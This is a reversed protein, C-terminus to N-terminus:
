GLSKNLKIGNRLTRFTGNFRYAEKDENFWAKGKARVIRELKTEPHIITYEVDYQGGSEFELASYFAQSSVTGTVKWLPNWQRALSRNATRLSASGNWLDITQRLNQAPPIFDFTALETAEIAFQLQDESEEVKQRAVVQMTNDLVWVAVKIVEGEPDKM